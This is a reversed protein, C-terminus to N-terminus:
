RAPPQLWDRCSECRVRTDCPLSEPAVADRAVQRVGRAERPPYVAGSIDPCAEQPDRPGRKRACVASDSTPLRLDSPNKSEWESESETARRQGATLREQARRARSQDRCQGADTGLGDRQLGVLRRARFTGGRRSARPASATAQQHPRRVCGSENCGQSAPM